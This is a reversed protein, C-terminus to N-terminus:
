YLSFWSRLVHGACSITNKSCPSGMISPSVPSKFTCTRTQMDHAPSVAEGAEKAEKALLV